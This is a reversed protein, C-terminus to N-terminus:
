NGLAHGPQSCTPVTNVANLTYSGGAPCVLSANRLYPALDSMQPVATATKNNELAWQQKAGDLQRLNNICATTASAADMALGYRQRMQLQEKTFVGGPVGTVTVPPQNTAAQVATQLAQVQAQAQAQVNQAREQAQQAQTQANQVQLGLQQKDQRLQQVENRLRLLDANDKRLQALENTEAAAKSAQQEEAAAQADRLAQNDARLQALESAAQRNSIFFWGAAALSGVVLVTGISKLNVICNLPKAITGIGSFDVGPL